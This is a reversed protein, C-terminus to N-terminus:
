QARLTKIFKVGTVKVKGFEIPRSPMCNQGLVALSFPKPLAFFTIQTRGHEFIHNLKFLIFTKFATPFLLCVFINVREENQGGCSKFSGGGLMQVLFSKGCDGDVWIDGLYMM